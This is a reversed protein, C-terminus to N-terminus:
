GGGSGAGGGIGSGDDVATGGRAESGISFSGAGFPWAPAYAGASVGGLVYELLVSGSTFEPGPRFLTAGSPEVFVTLATGHLV